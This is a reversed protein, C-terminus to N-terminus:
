KNEGEARYNRLYLYKHTYKHFFLRMVIVYLPQGCALMYKSYPMKAMIILGLVISIAMAFFVGIISLGIGMFLKVIGVDLLLVVGCAVLQGTTFYKFWRSENKTEKPIKHTGTSAM